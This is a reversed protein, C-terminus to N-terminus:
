SKRWILSQLKDENINRGVSAASLIGDRFVLDIVEEIDDRKIQDIKDLIEKPEHVEGLMLEAKGLGFMRSSTSELGLIYNGKLQEKAKKIEEDTMKFKIINNFEELILEMASDLFMENLAFYINFTGVNKYVTPFSYITYVYGKEERIKQFLKSSTGGGFYNNIALLTYLKDNGLEIGKLSFAVHTQEIDKNKVMVNRNINPSTFEAKNIGGSKLHSFKRELEEEIVLSNFNGAISIVINEPAYTKNFYEKIQKSKLDKINNEYGLIPYALSDKGWTSKSLIDMVLDEPSDDYMKIEEIIVGKEKHIDEDSFKPNLIMDSLVDIGVKYHEDLLKVYYCTAEKGTFANIQGGLEEIQEAIQKATRNTTGKFMLHEIFHSVGNVVENEYRSGSLIWVGMSISNIYPIHEMVVKIGNSLTFKKYM